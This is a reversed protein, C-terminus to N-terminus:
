VHARGIEPDYYVTVPAGASYGRLREEWYAKSNPEEEYSLRWGWINGGDVSYEYLIDPYWDEGSTTTDKRVQVHLFKGPVSPLRDLHVLTYIRRFDQRTSKFGLWCVLIGCLFALIRVGQPVGASPDADPLQAAPIKLKRIGYRLSDPRM